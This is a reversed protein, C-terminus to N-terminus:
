PMVSLPVLLNVSMVIVSLMVSLMLVVVVSVVSDVDVAFNVAAGATRGCCVVGSSGLVLFYAAHVSPLCSIGCRKSGHVPISEIATLGVVLTM